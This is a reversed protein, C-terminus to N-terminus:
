RRVAKASVVSELIKRLEAAVTEWTRSAAASIASPNWNKGLVSELGEALASADRPAVLCGCNDKMIEPIGGVNTAVVPRGCALAELVVNPCGEMYSPLTVLDAVAMWDAVEDFACAPLAHIYSAGGCREIANEILPRDPGEGVLYVHLRPHRPRLAAVAEVLEGLGKRLDMRGLFVIAEAASEVGLKERATRRDRPHFVSRDCGNILPRTTEPRAGMAIAKDRLDSSVTVLFDIERLATRTHMASIADPIRNLDSGISKGVVPIGLAKGIRLAAYVEPYLFCSFIVDPAFDRVHTLLARAEMWGNIPRSLMPLAFYNHYSTTVDPPSFSADLNHYNSSLSRVIAPYNAVPYFVHMDTEHALVRLTQYVSRGQWPEASTPFYRTIVAIKLM